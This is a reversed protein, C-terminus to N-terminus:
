VKQDYKSDWFCVIFVEILFWLYEDVLRKIHYFIARDALLVYWLSLAFLSHLIRSSLVQDCSSWFIQLLVSATSSLCVGQFSVLFKLEAKELLNRGRSLSVVLLCYDVRGPFDTFFCFFHPISVELWICSGQRIKFLVFIDLINVSSFDFDYVDLFFVFICSTVAIWWNIRLLASAFAIFTLSRLRLVLFIKLIQLVSVFLKSLHSPFVFVQENVAVNVLKVEDVDVLLGDSLCPGNEKVKSRFWQLHSRLSVVYSNIQILYNCLMSKSSNLLILWLFATPFVFDCSKNLLNYKFSISYLWSFPNM